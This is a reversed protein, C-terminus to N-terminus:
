GDLEDFIGRDREVALEFLYSFDYLGIAEIVEPSEMSHASGM